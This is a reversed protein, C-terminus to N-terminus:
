GRLASEMEELHEWVYRASRQLLWSHIKLAIGLGALGAVLPLWPLKWYSSAILVLAIMMGAPLTVLLSAFGAANSAMRSSMRGLDVKRPWHASIVNGAAFQLVLMALFGVTISAMALLSPRSITLMVVTALLYMGTFLIGHALNKGTIIKQLPPPSLLWREFGERDMGFINCALMPANLVMMAAIMALPALASNGGLFVKRAPNNGAFLMGFIIIPYALLVLLRPNQRIYRLEKEIVAALTDDVVPFKWGPRVKLERRAARGEAYIEGRYIARSQRGLLLAAILTYILLMMAPLLKNASLSSIADSTVGPPAVHNLMNLAPAASKFPITRSVKVWNYSLLNVAQPALMIILLVVVMRERGKRTSQFREFFGIVVRNCFVNFLVFLAFVPVAVLAWDPRVALIGGWISFLWLLGTIAAPDLLGYTCNLVYYLRFSIPYRAIERFDVGPSYGELLLPALQWVLFVAWLMAAIAWIQGNRLAALTGFHFGVSTGFVLLALFLFGIFQVALEVDRSRNSLSNVFLQWRM